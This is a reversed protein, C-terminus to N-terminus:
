FVKDMNHNFLLNAIARIVFVSTEGCVNSGSEVFKIEHFM